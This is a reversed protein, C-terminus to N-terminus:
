KGFIGKVSDKNLMVITFIGLATGFPIFLCEVCAMVFCFSYAKRKALCRGAVLILCAMTLGCLIFIGAVAVLIWGMAEPPQSTGTLKSPALAIFLGLVLHAVPLLSFLGALGAVVYHFISLLRLHEEDQNM